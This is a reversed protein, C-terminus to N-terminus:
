SKKAIVKRISSEGFTQNFKNHGSAVEKIHMRAEKATPFQEFIEQLKDFDTRLPTPDAPTPEPTATEELYFEETLKSV